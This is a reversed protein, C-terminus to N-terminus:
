DNEPPMMKPLLESVIVVKENKSARKVFKIQMCVYQVSATRLTSQIARKEQMNYMFMLENKVDRM